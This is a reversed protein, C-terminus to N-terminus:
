TVQSGSAADTAKEAVTALKVASTAPPLLHDGRLEARMKDRVDEVLGHFKTAAARAARRLEPDRTMLRARFNDMEFMLVWVAGHVPVSLYLENQIAYNNAKGYAEFGRMLDFEQIMEALLPTGLDKDGVWVRIVPDIKDDPIGRATAARKIDHHTWKSYDFGSSLPNTLDGQAIRLLAYLRSYVAHQRRVYLRFSTYERLHLRRIEDAQLDLIAGHNALTIDLDRKHVALQTGIELRLRGAIRKKIRERMAFGVLGGIAVLLEFVLQTALLAHV